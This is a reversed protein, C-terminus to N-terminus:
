IISLVLVVATAAGMLLSSPDRLAFSVPDDDLEGRHALLWVRSSWIMVFIVAGFLWDPHNYHGEPHVDSSVYLSLVLVSLFQAAIGMSLTLPADSVRYGRGKIAVDSEVGKRANVIEVHRKAM